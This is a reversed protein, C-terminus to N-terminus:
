VRYNPGGLELIRREWHAKERMSKNIEDNLDRLRQEGLSEKSNTNYLELFKHYVSKKFKQHMGNQIEVIKKGIDRIIQMRWRECDGINDCESAFAPRKGMPVRTGLLERKYTLWRNLM